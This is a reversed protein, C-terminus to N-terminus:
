VIGLVFFGGTHSVLGDKGEGLYTLLKFMSRLKAAARGEEQGGTWGKPCEWRELGCFCHQATNAWQNSLLSGDALLGASLGAGRQGVITEEGTGFRCVEGRLRPMFSPTLMFLIYSWPQFHLRSSTQQPNTSVRQVQLRSRSARYGELVEGKSELKTVPCHSQSRWTYTPVQLEATKHRLHM